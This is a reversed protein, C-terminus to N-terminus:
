ERQSKLLCVLLITEAGLLVAFLGFAFGYGWASIAGGLAVPGAFFGIGWFLYYAGSVTGKLADPAAENLFAMSSLFFTGLGISAAFLVALTSGRSLHPFAGILLATAGLGGIMFRRPGFRDSLPGAILQSLSVSLYYCAFFLQVFTQGYDKVGLLFAPLTTLFLGYGAGYLAIGALVAFIAPDSALAAINAVEFRSGAAPAPAATQEVLVAVLCASLACCAAFFLFNFEGPLIRLLLLGLLPGLTLGVHLTANYLGMVRGKTAPFLLSLLAPALAWLPAEGAGQVVRALFVLSKADALYYLIGSVCCLLYGAILFRKFGLRDSLVGMPVQLLIYPLAFASALYAVASQSGTLAIVKGPLMPMITGVGLMM